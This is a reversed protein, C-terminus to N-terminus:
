YESTGRRGVGDLFRAREKFTGDGSLTDTQSGASLGDM